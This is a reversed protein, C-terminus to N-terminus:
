RTNRSDERIELDSQMSPLPSRAAAEHKIARITTSSKQERERLGNSIQFLLLLAISRLGHRTRRRLVGGEGDVAGEEGELRGGGSEEAENGQDEGRHRTKGRGKKTAPAGNGKEEGGDQPQEPHM